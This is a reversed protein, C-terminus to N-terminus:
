LPTLTAAPSFHVKKHIPEVEDHDALDSLMAVLSHSHSNYDTVRQEDVHVLVATNTM